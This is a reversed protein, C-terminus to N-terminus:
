WLHRVLSWPSRVRQHSVLIEVLYLDGARLQQPSKRICLALIVGQQTSSNALERSSWKEKETAWTKSRLMRIGFWWPSVRPPESVSGQSCGGTRDVELKCGRSSGLLLPAMPNGTHESLDRLSSSWWLFLFASGAQKVRRVRMLICSKFHLAPRLHLRAHVTKFISSM